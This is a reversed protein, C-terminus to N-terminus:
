VLNWCLVYIYIYLVVALWVPQSTTTQSRVSLNPTQPPTQRIPRNRWFQTTSLTNMQLTESPKTVPPLHTVTPYRNGGPGHNNPSFQYVFLNYYPCIPLGISLHSSLDIFLKLSLHGSPSLIPLPHIDIPQYTSQMLPILSSYSPQIQNIKKPPCM